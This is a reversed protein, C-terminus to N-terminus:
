RYGLQWTTAANAHVILTRATVEAKGDVQFQYTFGPFCTHTYFAALRQDASSFTM